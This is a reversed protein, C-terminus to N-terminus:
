FPNELSDEESNDHIVGRGDNRSGYPPRFLLFDLSLYVNTAKKMRETSQNRGHMQTEM